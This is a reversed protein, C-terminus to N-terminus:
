LMARYVLVHGINLCGTKGCSHSQMVGPSERPMGAESAVNSSHRLKVVSSVKYVLQFINSNSLTLLRGKNGKVLVIEMVQEVNERPRKLV